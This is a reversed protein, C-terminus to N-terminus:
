LEALADKGPKLIAAETQRRIENQLMRANEIVEAVNEPVEIPRDYMIQYMEGNVSVVTETDGIVNMPKPVIVLVKGMERKKPATEKKPVTNTKPATAM